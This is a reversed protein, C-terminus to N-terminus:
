WVGYLAQVSILLTSAGIRESCAKGQRMIASAPCLVTSCYFTPTPRVPATRYQVSAVACEVELGFVRSIAVTAIATLSLLLMRAPMSLSLSIPILILISIFAPLLRARKLNRWSFLAFYDRCQPRGGYGYGGGPM